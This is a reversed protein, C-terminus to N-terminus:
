ESALAFQEPQAAGCEVIARDFDVGVFEFQHRPDVAADQEGTVGKLLADVEEQSLFEEHSM